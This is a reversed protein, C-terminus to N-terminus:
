VGFVDIHSLTRYKSPIFSLFIETKEEFTGYKNYHDVGFGIKCFIRSWGGCWAYNLSKRSIWLPHCWCHPCEHRPEHRTSWRLTITIPAWNFRFDRLATYLFLGGKSSVKASRCAVASRKTSSPSTKDISNLLSSSHLCTRSARFWILSGTCISNKSVGSLHTVTNAPGYGDAAWM